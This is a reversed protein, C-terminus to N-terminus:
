ITGTFIAFLLILVVVVVILPRDMLWIMYPEVAEHIIAKLEDFPNM